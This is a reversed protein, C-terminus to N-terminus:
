RWKSEWKELIIIKFIKQVDHSGCLVIAYNKNQRDFINSFQLSPFYKTNIQREVKVMTRGEQQENGELCSRKSM